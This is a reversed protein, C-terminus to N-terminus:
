IERLAKQTPLHGLDVSFRSTRTSALIGQTGQITNTHGTYQTNNRTIQATILTLYGSGGVTGSVHEPGRDWDACFLMYCGSM